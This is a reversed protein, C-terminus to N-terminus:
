LLESLLALYDEDHEVSLKGLIDSKLSLLNDNSSLVLLSHLGHNANM